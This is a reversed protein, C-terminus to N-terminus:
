RPYSLKGIAEAKVALSTGGSYLGYTVQPKDNGIIDAAVNEPVGANELMTAVSKRVSHFVVDPGFGLARKLTGFRKGAAGSRMGYQDTTLKALVYGTTREGILRTLVPLLEAHVPVDRIAADTKGATTVFYPVKAELKVNEVTLSCLEEIRAGTWRALDIV